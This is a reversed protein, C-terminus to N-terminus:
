ASAPFSAATCFPAVAVHAIGLLFGLAAGVSHLAPPCLLGMGGRGSHSFREGSGWGKCSLLCLGSPFPIGWLGRQEKEAIAELVQSICLTTRLGATHGDGPLKSAM